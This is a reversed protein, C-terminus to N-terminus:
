MRKLYGVEEERFSHPIGRYNRFIYTKISPLRNGYYDSRPISGTRVFTYVNGCYDVFKDGKKIAVM